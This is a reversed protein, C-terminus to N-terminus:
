SEEMYRMVFQHMRIIAEKMYELKDKSRHLVSEDTYEEVGASVHYGYAKGEYKASSLLELVVPDDLFYKKQKKVIRFTTPNIFGEVEVMIRSVSEDLIRTNIVIKAESYPGEENWLMEKETQSLKMIKIFKVIHVLLCFYLM